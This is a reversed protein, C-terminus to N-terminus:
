ERLSENVSLGLRSGILNGKDYARNIYGVARDIKGRVTLGFLLKEYFVEHPELDYSDMISVLRALDIPCPSRVYLDVLPCFSDVDPNIGIDALYNVVTEARRGDGCLVFGEILTNYIDRLMEPNSFDAFIRKKRFFHGTLYDVFNTAQQVYGRSLMICLIRMFMHPYVRLNNKICRELLSTVNKVIGRSANVYIRDEVAEPRNRRSIKSKPRLRKSSINKTGFFCKQVSYRSCLLRTPRVICWPQRIVSLTM